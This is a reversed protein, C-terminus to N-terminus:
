KILRKKHNPIEIDSDDSDSFQLEEKISSSIDLQDFLCSVEKKRNVSLM